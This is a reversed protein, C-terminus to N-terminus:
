EDKGRYDGNEDKTLGRPNREDIDIYGNQWNPPKVRTVHCNPKASYQCLAPCEGGYQWKEANVRQKVTLARGCTTAGRCDHWYSCFTMNRYCKM